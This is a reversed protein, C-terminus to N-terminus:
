PAYLPVIPTSSMLQQAAALGHAQVLGGAKRLRHRKIDDGIQIKLGVGTPGSESLPISGRDLQRKALSRRTAPVNVQRFAGIDPVNDFMRLTHVIRLGVAVYLWTNDM